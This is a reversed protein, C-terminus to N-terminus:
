THFGDQLQVPFLISCGLLKLGMSEVKIKDLFVQYGLPSFGALGTSACLFIISQREEPPGYFHTKERM